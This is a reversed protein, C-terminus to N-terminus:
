GHESFVGHVHVLGAPSPIRLQLMGVAVVELAVAVAYNMSSSEPSELCFGLYESAAVGIMEAVPERVCELNRLDRAGRRLREIEVDIQDLGESQHMVDPMRREPMGALLSQVARHLRISEDEIVVQM